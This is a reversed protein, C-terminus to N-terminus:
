DNFLNLKKARIVIYVIFFLTVLLFMTLVKNGGSIIGFNNLAIILYTCLVVFWNVKMLERFMISQSSVNTSLWIISLVYSGLLTTYCGKLTLLDFSM